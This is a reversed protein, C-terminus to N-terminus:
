SCEVANNHIRRKRVCVIDLVNHVGQLHQLGSASEDGDTGVARLLVVLKPGDNFRAATDPFNGESVKMLVPVLTRVTRRMSSAYWTGGAEPHVAAIRGRSAPALPYVRPLLSM